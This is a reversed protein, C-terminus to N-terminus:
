IICIWWNMDMVKETGLTSVIEPKLVNVVSANLVGNIILYDSKTEWTCIDRTNLYERDKFKINSQAWQHIHLEANEIM